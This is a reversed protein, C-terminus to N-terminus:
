GYWIHIDLKNIIHNRINGCVINVNSISRADINNNRSISSDSINLIIYFTISSYTNTNLKYNSSNNNTVGSAITRIFTNSTDNNIISDNSINHIAYVCWIPLLLLMLLLLM